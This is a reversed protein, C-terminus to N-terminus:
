TDINLAFLYNSSGFNDEILYHFFDSNNHKAAFLLSNAKTFVKVRLYIESECVMDFCDDFCGEIMRYIYGSDLTQHGVFVLLLENM